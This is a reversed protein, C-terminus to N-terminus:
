ALGHLEGVVMNGKDDFVKMVATNYVFTKLFFQDVMNARYHLLLHIFTDAKDIGIVSDQFFEAMGFAKALGLMLRNLNLMM